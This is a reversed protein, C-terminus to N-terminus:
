LLRRYNEPDARLVFVDDLRLVQGSIEVPDAVLPLVQQNVSGGSADVLLFTMSNGHQDRTLLVPPAGGAICRVACTRHVAGNGPRMTGFYCKSDVIEGRLTFDGLSEGGTSPEVHTSDTGPLASASRTAIYTQEERYILSGELEVQQGHLAPADIPPGSKGRGVLVYRSFARNGTEGPRVVVLHPVPEALLVGKFTRVDAFDSRAFAAEEHLAPVVFALLAASFLLLAVTVYTFRSLGAAMRPQWGIYFDDNDRDGQM